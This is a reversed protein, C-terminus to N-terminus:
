KRENLQQPTWRQPPKYSPVNNERYKNSLSKRATMAINKSEVKIEMMFDKELSSPEFLRVEHQINYKLTEIFLDLLNDESANKM